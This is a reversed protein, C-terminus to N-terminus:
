KIQELVYNVREEITKLIPIRIPSYGHKEYQNWIKQHLIVAEDKSKEIREGDFVFPLLDPILIKDYKCLSAYYEFEEPINGFIKEAYALTDISGRDLFIIKNNDLGEEQKIQRLLIEKEFEFNGISSDTYGRERIIERAVEGLVFHGKKKLENILTTKGSCSGGAIVCKM